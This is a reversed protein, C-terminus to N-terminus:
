NKNVNKKFFEIIDSYKYKISDAKLIHDKKYLFDRFNNIKEYIWTMVSEIEKTDYEIYIKVDEEFEKYEEYMKKSIILASIALLSPKIKSYGWHLLCIDLIMNSMKLIRENSNTIVFYLGLFYNISVINLEFKLGCLIDREMKFIQYRSYSNSTINTCDDALVNNKEEYKSAIFFSTIAVLQLESKKINNLNLYKDMIYISLFLTEQDCKFHKCVEIIWEVIINRIKETVENNLSICDEFYYDKEKKKMNEYIEKTYTFDELEKPPETKEEENVKIENKKENVKAIESKM